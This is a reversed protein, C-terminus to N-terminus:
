RRRRLAALGALGLAAAGAPAPVVAFDRVTVAGNGIAGQFAIQGDALNLQYFATTGILTQGSFFANDVGGFTAIDFGYLDGAAFLGFTASVTFLRGENPSVPTANISGQTVLNRGFGSQVDFAYMTTQTATPAPGGITNNSYATTVVRPTVAANADAADYRIAGFTASDNAAQAGTDPNLRLNVGTSTTLRIRDAAPNFDIAVSGSLGAIPAGLPTAAGTVTNIKYVRNQSSFAYLESTRPRIDVNTLSEGSQLGTVALNSAIINVNGSDFTYLRDGASSLGIVPAADAAVSLALGAAIATLITLRSARTNM